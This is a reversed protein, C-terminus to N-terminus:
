TQFRAHALEPTAQNIKAISTGDPRFEQWDIESPDHSASRMHAPNGRRVARLHLQYLLDLSRAAGCSYGGAPYLQIRLTVFPWDPILRGTNASVRLSGFVQGHLVSERTTM